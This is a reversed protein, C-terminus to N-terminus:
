FIGSYFLLLWGAVLVFVLLGLDTTGLQQEREEMAKRRLAIRTGLKFVRYNASKHIM